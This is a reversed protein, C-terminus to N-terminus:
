LPAATRGELLGMAEWFRRPGVDVVLRMEAGRMTRARVEQFTGFSRAGLLILEEKGAPSDALLPLSRRDVLWGVGILGVFWVVIATVQLPWGAYWNGQLSTFVGLLIVGVVVTYLVYYGISTIWRLTHAAASPTVLLAHGRTVELVDRYETTKRDASFLYRDRVPAGHHGRSSSGQPPAGTAGLRDPHSARGDGPPPRRVM